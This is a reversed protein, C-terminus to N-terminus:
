GPLEARKTFRLVIRQSPDDVRFGDADFTPARINGEIKLTFQRMDGFISYPEYAYHTVIVSGMILRDRIIYTGIYFYRSDGGLVRNTEFVVVGAGDIGMSWLGEIM